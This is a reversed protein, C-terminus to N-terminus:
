FLVYSLAREASTHLVDLASTGTGHPLLLAGVLLALALPMSGRNEHQCRAPAREAFALLMGIRLELIGTDNAGLPAAGSLAPRAARVIAEALPLPAAGHRVAERDCHAERAAKWRAAHPALLFRGVPNLALALQLLMYRLPDRSRVHEAEHALASALMEDTLKAAFEVGIFVRPALLGMTALTFGAQETVVVRGRLGALESQADLLPQVRALLTSAARSSAVAVKSVRYTASLWALAVGGALLSAFFAPEFCLAANDHDILCALASRGTEAQHIGASMFWALPLVSSGTLLVYRLSLRSLVGRAGDGCELGVLCAKAVLASLPLVVLVVFAAGLVPFAAESM